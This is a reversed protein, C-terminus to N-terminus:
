QCHYRRQQGHGTAAVLNYQTMKALYNRVMRETVPDDVRNRYAAYLDPPAVEGREAVAEYVVRQDDTLTEVNRQRIESKAAPVVQAIVDDTV